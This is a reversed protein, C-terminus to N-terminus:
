VRPQLLVVMNEQTGVVEDCRLTAGGTLAGQVAAIQLCIGCGIIISLTNTACACRCLRCSHWNSWQVAQHVLSQKM